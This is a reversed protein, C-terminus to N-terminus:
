QDYNIDYHGNLELRLYTLIPYSYTYNTTDLALTVFEQDANTVAWASYCGIKDTIAAVQTDSFLVPAGVTKGYTNGSKYFLMLCDGFFPASFRPFSVSQTTNTDYPIVEVSEIPDALIQRVASGSGTNLLSFNLVSGNTTFTYDPLYQITNYIIANTINSGSANYVKYTTNASLTDTPQYLTGGMLTQYKGFYYGWPSGDQTISNIGNFKHGNPIFITQNGKLRNWIQSSITSFTLSNDSNVTLLTGTVTSGSVINDTGDSNVNIPTDFNNNTPNLESNAPKFCGVYGGIDSAYLAVNTPDPNLTYDAVTGDLNYANFINPLTGGNRQEWVIQCTENGFSDQAFMTLATASNMGATICANRLLQVNAKSDNTWTIGSIVIGNLKFINNSSLVSYRLYQIASLEVTGIIIHNKTSNTSQVALVPCIKNYTCNAQSVNNTFGGGTTFGNSFFCFNSNSPMDSIGTIASVVLYSNTGYNVRPYIDTQVRAFFSGVPNYNSVILNQNIDDGILTKSTVFYENVVGRFVIYSIGSKQAAKNVSRYPFQRTGNGTNDDGIYTHVFATNTNNCATTSNSGDANPIWITKFLNDM